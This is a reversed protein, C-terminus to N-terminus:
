DSWDDEDDDDWDDDEDDSDDEDSLYAVQHGGLTPWHRLKLSFCSLYLLLSLQSTLCVGGRIWLEPKDVLSAQLAHVLSCQSLSYLCVFTFAATLDYVLSSGAM